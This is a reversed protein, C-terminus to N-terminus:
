PSRIARLTTELNTSRPRSTELEGLPGTLSPNGNVMTSRHNGEKYGEFRIQFERAGFTIESSSKRGRAWYSTWARGVRALLAVRATRSLKRRSISTSLM